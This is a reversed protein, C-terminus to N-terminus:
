ITYFNFRDSSYYKKFKFRSFKFRWNNFFLLVIGKYSAAINRPQTLILVSLSYLIFWSIYSVIIISPITAAWYRPYEYLFM